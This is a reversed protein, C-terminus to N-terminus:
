LLGPVGVLIYRDQSSPIMSTSTSSVLYFYFYFYFVFCSKNTDMDLRRFGESDEGASVRVFSVHNMEVTRM